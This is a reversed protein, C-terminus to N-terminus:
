GHVVERAPEPPQQDNPPRWNRVDIKGTVAASILASRREQLLAILGDADNRMADIESLLVALHNAIAHQEIPPPVVVIYQRIADVNIRRFTAGVMLQELQSLVAPSRLQYGLYASSMEQRKWRLLCVDQGMAFDEHSAVLAAEGVTANRSYIIDGVKPKRGGETLIRYYHESTNKATALNVEFEQVERISALPYGQDTLDATVHKCDIVHVYNKLAAIQWHEPVEGLCEVGSDKMTVCPDSGKTVAQLIVAQRKEKLLGILRQQEAILADIKATEGDLFHAIGCQEERPPMLVAMRSHQQPELDWQNVRIGKSRSLYSSIYEASRFLYHLYRRSEHHHSQYVHYAPSAIGRHGSIAVSGQWAKMKNITLDGPLVLQYAALDESAKNFNDDRSSKPIVGYDRYVSLLPEEPFGTRKERRFMTWLPRLRWHEPVEGLWEVGSEKYKPYKPFSM